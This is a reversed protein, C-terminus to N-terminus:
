RDDPVDSRRPFAADLYRRIETAAREDLTVKLVSTSAGLYKPGALRYGGSDDGIELQFGGTRGDRDVALHVDSM